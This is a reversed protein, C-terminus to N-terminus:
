ARIEGLNSIRPPHSRLKATLRSDAIGQRGDRRLPRRTSAFGPADSWIATERPIGPPEEEGLTSLLLEKQDVIVLRGPTGAEKAFPPLLITEAKPIALHLEDLVRRRASAITVELGQKAKRRLLKGMEESIMQPLLVGILISRRARRLMEEARASINELGRVTWFEGRHEHTLKRERRLDRLAKRAKEVNQEHQRKLKQLAMEFPIARYTIPRSRYIEVLGKEELAQAVDYVRSRPINSIRSIDSATGQELKTLAVFIEAEYHMLGLTELSEIPM